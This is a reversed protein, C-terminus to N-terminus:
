PRPRKRVNAKRRRQHCSRVRQCVTKLSAPQREDLIIFYMKMTHLRHSVSRVRKAGAEESQVLARLELTQAQKISDAPFKGIPGAAMVVAPCRKWGADPELEAEVAQKFLEQSKIAPWCCHSNDASLWCQPVLAVRDEELSFKVICCM